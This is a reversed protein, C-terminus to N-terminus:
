FGRLRGILSSGFRASSVVGSAAIAKIIDILAFPAAGMLWASKVCSMWSKGGAIGIWSALWCTGFLYVVAVGALGSAWYGFRSKSTLRESVWGAAFAGFIFGILYGGTPGALIAPGAAWGAFVPLGALGMALYMVQSIAGLRSGLALGALIVGFVQLTIPVPTYWLHLYVKACAATLAAFLMATLINLRTDSRSGAISKGYISM